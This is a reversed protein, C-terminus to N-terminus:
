QAARDFRHGASHSRLKNTLMFRQHDAPPYGGSQLHGGFSRDNLNGNADHATHGGMIRYIAADSQRNQM